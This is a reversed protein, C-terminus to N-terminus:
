WDNNMVRRVGEESLIGSFIYLEDIEGKLTGRPIGDSDFSIGMRLETNADWGPTTYPMFYRWKSAKEPVGDVYLRVPIRTEPDPECGFVVALHHWQGDRLDTTGVVYGPGCTIRLAGVQGADPHFNWGVDFKGGFEGTDGWVVISERKFEPKDPSLRLWVAVSRHSRGSIGPWNTRIHDGKGYNRHAKGFKGPVLVPQGPDTRGPIWSASLAPVDPHDGAVPITEGDMSDFSFRLHPIRPRLFELFEEPRLPIPGLRGAPGAVRAVQGALVEKKRLGHRHAVEVKGKFVHVEDPTEPSALVGFETGLDTIQLDPTLVQFGRAKAPVEFRIKGRNQQIRNEAQLTFDAPAEVMAIVGTALTLKVAGQRLLLRSGKALTGPALEEKASSAHSVSFLADDSTRFTVLPLPEKVFTVKFVVGLLILAAAAAMVAYNASRRRERSVLRDVSTLGKMSRAVSEPMSFKQGLLNHLDAHEMFRTRAEPCEELCKELEAFEEATLNGDFLRWIRDEDVKPNM